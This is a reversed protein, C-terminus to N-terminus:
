QIHDSQLEMNQTLYVEASAASLEDEYRPPPLLRRHRLCQRGPSFKGDNIWPDGCLGLVGAVYLNGAARTAYVRLQPLARHRTRSWRPDAVNVAATAQSEGTIYHLIGRIPTEKQNEPPLIPRQFTMSKVGAGRAGTNSETVTNYVVGDDM